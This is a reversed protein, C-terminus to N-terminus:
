VEQPLINRKAAVAATRGAAEGMPVANGTMRYSSHAFFDGSICRGAMMLGYVDAALLSRLPIDYGRSRIGENYAGQSHKNEPRALSHVDVGATVSCVADDFGSGNILDDKTITYLGHIRRGERTGIQEATALM